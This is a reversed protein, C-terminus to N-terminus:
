FTSFGKVILVLLVLSSAAYLAPATYKAAATNNKMILSIFGTVAILAAYLLILVLM